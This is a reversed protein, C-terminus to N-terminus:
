MPIDAFCSEAHGDVCSDEKTEFLNILTEVVVHKLRRKDGEYTKNSVGYVM